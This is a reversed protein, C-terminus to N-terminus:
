LLYLAEEKTVGALNAPTWERNVYFQLRIGDPDQITVARRVVHAIEHELVIGREPLAAVSRNLENEDNVAIGVHHMGPTLGAGSRFLVFDGSSSTGRLVAFDGQRNGFFPNLGIVQTYYDFMREYDKAVFAVHTVKKARFISTSVVRLEPNKPYLSEKIPETTVGPVWKPKKQEIVGHRATRWDLVVDAYLEVANGDPDFKYLSHAVDHDQTSEFTIGADVAQRYGKVLDVETELEFAIHFLGASQDARAYKSTVDTLALDHYTNGNSIFSAQNDPQRYVEEFGVISHYFDFAREYNNVFLNVHGLRRPQFYTAEAQQEVKNM